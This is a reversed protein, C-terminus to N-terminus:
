PGGVAVVDTASRGRVAIFPAISESVDADWAPGPGSLLVGGDGAVFVHSADAGWVKFLANSDAPLEAPLGALEWAVGDFHLLTPADDVGDGGVSWVDSESAGWVGWLTVNTPTAHVVWADGERRLTTGDRGVLWVDAGAPGVWHLMPTGSPLPDDVWAGGIRQLVFGASATEDVQGGVVRAGELAEGWVAMAMGREPGLEEVVVWGTPPPGTSDVGTTTDPDVVGSSVEAGTSPGPPGTSATSSGSPDSPAPDACAVVALM